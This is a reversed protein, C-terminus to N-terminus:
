KQLMTERSETNKGIKILNVNLFKNHLMRKKYVAKRLEKNMFPALKPVAKRKQM